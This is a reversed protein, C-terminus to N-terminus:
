KSRVEGGNVELTTKGEFMIYRKWEGRGEKREQSGDGGGEKKLRQEQKEEM